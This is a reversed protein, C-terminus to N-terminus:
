PRWTARAELAAPDEVIWEVADITNAGATTAIEIVHQAESARLQIRWKQTAEFERKEEAQRYESHYALQLNDTEINKAPVGSKTLAKIINEATEVIERYADEKTSAYNVYGISVIALQPEVEITERVTVSLTHKQRDVAVRQAQVKPVLVLWVLFLVVISRKCM